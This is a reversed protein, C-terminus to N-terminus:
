SRSPPELWEERWARRQAEDQLTAPLRERIVSELEPCRPIVWAALAIVEAPALADHTDRRFRREVGSWSGGAIHLQRVPALPNRGVLERVDREYNVAQCWVSHLDLLLVGDTADLVRALM